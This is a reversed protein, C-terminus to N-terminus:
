SIQIFLTIFKSLLAQQVPDLSDPDDERLEAALEEPGIVQQHIFNM